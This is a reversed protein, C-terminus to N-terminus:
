SWAGQARGNIDYCVPRWPYLLGAFVRLLHVVLVRNAPEMDITALTDDMCESSLALM